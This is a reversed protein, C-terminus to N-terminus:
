PSPKNGALTTPRRLPTIGAEDQHFRKYEQECAPVKGTAVDFDGTAPYLMASHLNMSTVPVGEQCALNLSGDIM